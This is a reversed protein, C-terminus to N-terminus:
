MVSDLPLHESVGVKSSMVTATIHLTFGKSPNGGKDHNRQIHLHLIMPSMTALRFFIVFESLFFSVTVVVHRDAVGCSNM